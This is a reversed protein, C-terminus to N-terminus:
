RGFRLPRHANLNNDFKEWKAVQDISEQGYGSVELAKFDYTCNSRPNIEV